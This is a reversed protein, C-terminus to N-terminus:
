QPTEKPTSTHDTALREAASEALDYYDTMM